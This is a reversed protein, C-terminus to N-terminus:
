LVRMQNHDLGRQQYYQEECQRSHDHSQQRGVPRTLSWVFGDSTPATCPPSPYREAQDPPVCLTVPHEVAHGDHQCQHQHQLSLAYSSTHVYGGLQLLCELDYVPAVQLLRDIGQGPLQCLETSTHMVVGYLLVEGAVIVSESFCVLLEFLYDLM